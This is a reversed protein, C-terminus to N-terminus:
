GLYYGLMEIYGEVTTVLEQPMGSDKMAKLLADFNTNKLWQMLAEQDTVDVANTPVTIKGGKSSSSSMAVGLLTKSGVLINVEFSAKDGEGGFVLELAVNDALLSAPIGSESLIGSMLEEGPIIRLTGGTETVNEFELTVSERGDVALTYEGESVGDNEMAEGTIEMPGVMAETYTTDGKVASIWLFPEESKKGETYVTLGHGRVNGKMDVYVKLKLYNGSEASEKALELEELATPLMALFQEHLDVPVFYDSNLEGASNVYDSLADLFKELTKDKQAQKVAKECINILEKETIKATLVVMKQSADGVSVTDTEKEVSKIGSLVIGVYTNLLENLDKESPLAKILAEGTQQSGTLIDKFNVGPLVGSVDVFLYDKNLEPITMYEKGAAMDMIVDLSLLHTKGLGLGLTSQLADGQVNADVSLKIENLWDLDMTMGQQQLASEAMALIESGLTLRLDMAGATKDSDYNELLQGYAQTLEQSYQAIAENEVKELYAEPSQFTRDAFASVSDFNLFVGVAVAAVIVLAVILAILGGKKKPAKKAPESSGTNLVFTEEVPVEAAPVEQVAPQEARAAACESCLTQQGEVPKGCNECFM